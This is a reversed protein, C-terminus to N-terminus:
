WVTDWISFVDVAYDTIGMPKYVIDDTAPDIHYEFAHAGRETAAPSCTGLLRSADLPTDPSSQLGAPAAKAGPLALYHGMRSAM